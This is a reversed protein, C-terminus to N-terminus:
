RDFRIELLGKSALSMNRTHRLLFPNCSLTSKEQTDLIHRQICLRLTKDVELFYKAHLHCNKKNVYFLALRFWSAYAIFTIIIESIDLTGKFFFSWFYSKSPLSYIKKKHNMFLDRASISSHNELVMAWSCKSPYPIQKTGWLHHYRIIIGLTLFVNSHPNM